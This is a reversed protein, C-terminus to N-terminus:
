DATLLGLSSLLAEHQDRTVTAAHFSAMGALDLQDFTAHSLNAHDLTAGSLDINNLSSGRFSVDRLNCGALTADRLDSSEFLSEQYDAPAFDAYQLKCKLFRVGGVMVQTRIKRQTNLDLKIGAASCETMALLYADCGTMTNLSLNCKHFEAKSLDCYRWTTATEGECFLCDSFTAEKFTCHDFSCNIFKTSRITAQNFNCNSFRCSRFEVEGIHFDEMDEGDFRRDSVPAALNIADALDPM